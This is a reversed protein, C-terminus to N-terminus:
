EVDASVIFHTLAIGESPAPFVAMVIMGIQEYDQPSADLDNRSPKNHRSGPEAEDSM